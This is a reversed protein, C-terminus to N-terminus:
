EVKASLDDMLDSTSLYESGDIEIGYRELEDMIEYYNLSTHSEEFMPIIIGFEWNDAEWNWPRSDRRKQDAFLVDYLEMLKDIKREIEVQSVSEGFFTEVMDMLGGNGDNDLNTIATEIKDMTGKTNELIEDDSMGSKALEYCEKGCDKIMDMFRQKYIPNPASEDIRIWRM